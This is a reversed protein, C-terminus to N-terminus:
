IGGEPVLFKSNFFSDLLHDGDSAPFGLIDSILSKRAPFEEPIEPIRPIM